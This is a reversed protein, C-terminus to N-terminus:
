RTTQLVSRPAGFRDSFDNLEARLLDLLGEVANAPLVVDAVAVPPAAPALPDDRGAQPTPLLSFTIRFDFPTFSVHAVDAYIAPAANTLDPPEVVLEQASM